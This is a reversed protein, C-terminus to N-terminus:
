YDIEDKNSDFVKVTHYQAASKEKIALAERYRGTGDIFIGTRNAVDKENQYGMVLFREDDSVISFVKCCANPHNRTYENDRHVIHQYKNLLEIDSDSLALSDGAYRVKMPHEKILQVCVGNDLFRDRKTILHVNENDGLILTTIADHESTQIYPNTKHEAKYIESHVISREVDGILYGSVGSKGQWIAGEKSSDGYYVNFMDGQKIDSAVTVRKISGAETVDFDYFGNETSVLRVQM